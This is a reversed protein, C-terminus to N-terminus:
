PVLTVFEKLYARASEIDLRYTVDTALCPTDGTVTLSVVMGNLMHPGGSNGYCTGGDDLPPNMSIKLWADTLASFTGTANRRVGDFYLSQPGKTKDKRVDGYGVTIFQKNKLLGQANLADLFGAPPLSAPTIRRIPRNFVVAGVDNLDSM